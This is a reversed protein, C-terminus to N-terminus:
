PLSASEGGARTGLANYLRYDISRNVFHVSADGMAFMAGGPHRSKFGCAKYHPNNNHLETQSWSDPQGGEGEMIGLPIQTGAVTFNSGFATNHFCHSPITEGFLFTNSLGDRVHASGIALHTRGFMGVFTPKGDVVKSGYNEGDCAFKSSDYFCTDPKTPGMSAMYWTVHGRGYTNAVVTCRHGMIADKARGDSPCVYAAIPTTVAVQNDAHSISKSFDFLDYHNQQELQPLIAAAWSAINVSNYPGGSPFSGHTTDYARAALGIQKLQNSCQLRRAAERAANVAPLLLAVLLGIIAIVVLLAVLTFARRM